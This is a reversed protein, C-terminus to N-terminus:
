VMDGATVEDEAKIIATTDREKPQEREGERESRNKRLGARENENAVKIGLYQKIETFFFFVRTLNSKQTNTTLWVFGDRQETNKLVYTSGFEAVVEAVTERLGNESM